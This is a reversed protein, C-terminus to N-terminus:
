YVLVYIFYDKVNSVSCKSCVFPQVDFTLKTFWGLDKGTLKTCNISLPLWRRLSVYYILLQCSSLATVKTSNRVFM